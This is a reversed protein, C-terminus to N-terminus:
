KLAVSFDVDVPPLCGEDNCTMYTLSGKIQTPKGNTTVSQTFTTLGAFKIIDMEFLDDYSATKKGAESAEGVLKVNDNKDFEFSTPIPGNEALFQSYIYWGEEVDARFVINYEQDGTKEASYTWSVPNIQSWATTFFATTLCFLLTLKKM